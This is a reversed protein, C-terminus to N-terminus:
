AKAENSVWRAAAMLIAGLAIMILSKVLLTTGLIYYFSSVEFLGFLIALGMLARNRVAFALAMALMALLVAMLPWLVVGVTVRASTSGGLASWFMGPHTALPAISLAAILGYTAPRLLIERGQSMWYEERLALWCATCIVPVWVILWLVISALLQQSAMAQISDSSTRWSIGFIEGFLLQNM